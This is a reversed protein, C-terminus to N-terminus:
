NKIEKIEYNYNKYNDYDYITTLFEITKIVNKNKRKKSNIFCKNKDNEFLILLINSKEIYEELVKMIRIFISNNCLRPDAICINCNGKKIEKILENNIFTTIFDDFFIYDNKM